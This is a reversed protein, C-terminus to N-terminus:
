NNLLALLQKVQAATLTVEDATGKGLTINGALTENGQWDLTRANSRHSSDKGNGVIEIHNGKNETDQPNDYSNFQGFVFQNKGNATNSQGIAFSNTGRLTNYYGLAVARYGSSNIFNGEQAFSKYYSNYILPIQLIPYISKIKEGIDNYMFVNSVIEYGPIKLEIYKYQSVFTKNAKIEIYDDMETDFYLTLDTREESTWRSDSDNFHFLYSTSISYSNDSMNLIIDTKHLRIIDRFIHYFNYNRGENPSLQYGQIDGIAVEKEIQRIGIANDIMRNFDITTNITKNVKEIKVTYTGAIQTIITGSSIKFSYNSFDMEWNQTQENYFEFAGYCRKDENYICEYENGNFTVRIILNNDISNSFYGVIYGYGNDETTVEEELILEYENEVEWGNENDKVGSEIKNLKEATITDGNKWETKEYAM